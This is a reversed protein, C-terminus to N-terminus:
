AQKQRPRLSRRLSLATGESAASCCCFGELAVAAAGPRCVRQKEQVVDGLLYLFDRSGQGQEGMGRFGAARLSSATFHPCSLDIHTSKPVGPVPTPGASEKKYQQPKQKLFRGSVAEWVTESLEEVPPSCKSLQPRPFRKARSHVVEHGTTNHQTAPVKNGLM